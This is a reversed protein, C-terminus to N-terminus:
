KGLRLTTIEDSMGSLETELELVRKGSKELEIVANEHLTSSATANELSTRSASALQLKLDAIEKDLQEM